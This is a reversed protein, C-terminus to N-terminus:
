LSSSPAEKRLPASEEPKKSDAAPEDDCYYYSKEIKIM